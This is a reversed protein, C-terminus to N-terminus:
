NPHHTGPVASQPGAAGPKTPADNPTSAGDVRGDPAPTSDKPWGVALIGAPALWLILDASNIAGNGLAEPTISVWETTIKDNIPHDIPVPANPAIAKAPM